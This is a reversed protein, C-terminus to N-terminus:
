GLLVKEFVDRALPDGRLIALEWLDHRWPELGTTECDVVAVPALVNKMRVNEM